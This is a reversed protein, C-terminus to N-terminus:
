YFFRSPDDPFNRWCQNKKKMVPDKEWALSQRYLDELTTSYRKELRPIINSGSKKLRILQELRKRIDPISALLEPEFRIVIGANTKMIRDYKPEGSSCFISGKRIVETMSLYHEHGPRFRMLIPILAIERNPIAQEDLIKVYSGANVGFYGLGVGKLCQAHAQSNSIWFDEYLLCDQLNYFDKGADGWPHNESLYMNILDTKQMDKLFLRREDGVWGKYLPVPWFSILVFIGVASLKLTDDSSLFSKISVPISNKIFNEFADRNESIINHLFLALIAASPLFFRFAMFDGGLRIMYLILIAPAATDRILRYVPTSLKLFGKKSLVYLAPPFLILFTFGPSWMMTYVLYKFGQIYYSSTGSKAYYTNPFIDNYYLYRFLHYGGIWLLSPVAWALLPRISKLISEKIGSKSDRFLEYIFFAAYSIYFLAMEPRTLYLMSLVASYFSPADKLEYRHLTTFFVTLLFFVLSFELGSTSFDRFGSISVLLLVSLPFITKGDKNKGYILIGLSFLTFMLGMTISGAHLPIGIGRIIVLLMMWLPHTFTEIREGSNYVLGHGSFLNEVIRFTIYADEAVWIRLGVAIFSLFFILHPIYRAMM